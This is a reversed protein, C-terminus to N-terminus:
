GVKEGETPQRDPNRPDKAWAAISKNGVLPQWNRYKHYVYLNNMIYVEFGAAKVKGHYVTDRGLIGGDVKFGGVEKHVTKSTVMVLGSILRKAITPSERNEVERAIEWHYFLDNSKRDVKSVVQQANGVRNTVCTLLGANPANKINEVIIEYWRPNSWFIDHDHIVVWECPANEILTNLWGGYARGKIFGSTIFLDMSRVNPEM